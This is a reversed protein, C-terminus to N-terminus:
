DRLFKRGGKLLEAVPNRNDIALPLEGVALNIVVADVECQIQEFEPKSRKIPHHQLKRVDGLERDKIERQLADSADRNRRERAMTIGLDSLEDLDGFRDCAHKWLPM